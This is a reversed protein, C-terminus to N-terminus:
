ASGPRICPQLDLSLDMTNCLELLSTIYVQHIRSGQISWPVHQVFKVLLHDKSIANGRIIFGFCCNQKLFLKPPELLWISFFLCLGFGSSLLLLVFAWAGAVHGWGLSLLKGHNPGSAMLSPYAIVVTTGRGDVGMIYLKLEYNRTLWIQSWISCPHAVLPWPDLYFPQLLHLPFHWVLISSIASWWHM